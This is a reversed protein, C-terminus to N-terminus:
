PREARHRIMAINNPIGAASRRPVYFLLISHYLAHHHIIMEYCRFIPPSYQELVVAQIYFLAYSNIMSM